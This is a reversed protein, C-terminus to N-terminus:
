EETEEEELARELDGPSREPEARETPVESPSREEEPSREPETVLFNQLRHAGRSLLRLRGEAVFTKMMRTLYFYSIGTEASLMHLNTSFVHRRDAREYMLRHLADRDYIQPRGPM